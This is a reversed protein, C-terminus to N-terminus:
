SRAARRPRSRRTPSGSRDTGDGLSVLVKLGPRLRKLARLQQFNGRLPQTDDVATGDVSEEATWPREVDAWADGLRCGVPGSGDASAPAVSGFAYNLTTIRPLPARPPWAERPTAAPM